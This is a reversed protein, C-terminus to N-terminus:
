YTLFVSRAFGCELLESREVYNKELFIACLMYDGEEVIEFSNHRLFLNPKKKM